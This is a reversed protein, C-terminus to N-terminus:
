SNHSPSQTLGHSVLTHVVYSQTVTYGFIIQPLSASATNCQAIYLM